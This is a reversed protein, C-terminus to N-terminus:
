KLLWIVIGVLFTIVGMVLLILALTLTFDSSNIAFM